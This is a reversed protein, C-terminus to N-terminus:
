VIAVYMSIRAGHIIRSLVDRGVDDTGLLHKASRGDLSAIRDQFYPSYPALRDAFVAVCVGCLSLRGSATGLWKRGAIQLFRRLSQQRGQGPRAGVEGALSEQTHAM